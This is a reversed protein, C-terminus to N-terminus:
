SISHVDVHSNDGYSSVFTKSILLNQCDAFDFTKRNRIHSDVSALTRAKMSLFGLFVYGQVVLEESSHPRAVTGIQGM